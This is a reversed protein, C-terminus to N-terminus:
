IIFPVGIFEDIHSKFIFRYAVEETTCKTLVDLKEVDFTSALPLDM